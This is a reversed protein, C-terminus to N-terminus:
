PRKPKRHQKAAGDKQASVLKAYQLLAYAFRDWDPEDRLEARVSVRSLHKRSTTRKRPM